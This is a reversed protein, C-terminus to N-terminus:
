HTGAHSTLPLPEDFVKRKGTVVESILSQRYQKLLAIREEEKAIVEDMMGTREKLFELVRKREDGVPLPFSFNQLDGLNLVAQLAGSLVDDKFRYFIASQVLFSFYDVELEPSLVVRCVSRSINAGSLESSVVSFKGISGVVSLLFDGEEVVSRRYEESLGESIRMLKSDNIQGGLDLTRILPVSKEDDVGDPKLVGYCLPNQLCYM